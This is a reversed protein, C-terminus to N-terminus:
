AHPNAAIWEDISKHVIIKELTTATITDQQFSYTPNSKLIAKVQTDVFLHTFSPLPKNWRTDASIRRVFYGAQTLKKKMAMYSPQNFNRWGQAVLYIIKQSQAPEGDFEVPTFKNHYTTKTFYHIIDDSSYQYSPTTVMSFYKMNYQISIITATGDKKLISAWLSPVSRPNFGYTEYIQRVDREMKSENARPAYTKKPIPLPKEETTFLISEDQPFQAKWEELSTFRKMDGPFVQLYENKKTLVCTSIRKNNSVARYTISM